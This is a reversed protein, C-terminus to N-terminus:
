ATLIHRTFIEPPLLANKSGGGNKLYLCFSKEHQRNYLILTYYRMYFQENGYNNGSIVCQKEWANVYFNLPTHTMFVAANIGTFSRLERM